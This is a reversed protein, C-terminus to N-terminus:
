QSVREVVKYEFEVKFDEGVVADRDNDDDSVKDDISFQMTRLWAIAHIPAM